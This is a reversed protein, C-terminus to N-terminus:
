HTVGNLIWHIGKNKALNMELELELRERRKGYKKLIFLM